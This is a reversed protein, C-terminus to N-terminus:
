AQEVIKIITKMRDYVENQVDLSERDLPKKHTAYFVEQAIKWTKSPDAAIFDFHPHRVANYQRRGEMLAIDQITALEASTKPGRNAKDVLIAISKNVTDANQELVSVRDLVTSRPQHLAEFPRKKDGDDADLRETIKQLQQEFKGIIGFSNAGPSVGARSELGALRAAVRPCIAEELADIRHDRATLGNAIMTRTDAIGNRLATIDSAAITVRAPAVRVPIVKKAKAM